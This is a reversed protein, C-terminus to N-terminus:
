NIELHQIKIIMKLDSLDTNIARRGITINIKTKERKEKTLSILSTDIKQNKKSGPKIKISKEM